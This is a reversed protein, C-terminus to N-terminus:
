HTEEYPILKYVDGGGDSKIPTEEIGHRGSRIKTKKAILKAIAINNTQAAMKGIYVKYGNDSKGIALEGDEGEFIGVRREEKTLGLLKVTTIPMSISGNDANAFLFPKAEKKRGAKRKKPTIEKM